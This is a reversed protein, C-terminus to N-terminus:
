GAAAYSGVVALSASTDHAEFHGLEPVVLHMAQERVKQRFCQVFCLCRAHGAMKRLQALQVFSRIVKSRM